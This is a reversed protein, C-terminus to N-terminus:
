GAAEAFEVSRDTSGNDVVVVEGAVSARKLGGLAEAVTAGVGEEENLCPLVVTVFGIRRGQQAAVNPAGPDVPIPTPEGVTNRQRVAVTEASSEMVCEM